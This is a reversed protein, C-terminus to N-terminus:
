HKRGTSSSFHRFFLVLSLSVSFLSLFSSFRLGYWLQAPGEPDAYRAFLADITNNIQSAGIGLLGLALSSALLRIDSSFFKVLALSKEKSFREFSVFAQDSHQLGSCAAAL